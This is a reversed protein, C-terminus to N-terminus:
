GAGQEGIWQWPETYVINANSGDIVLIINSTADYGCEPCEVQLLSTTQGGSGDSFVGMRDSGVCYSYLLMGADWVLPRPVDPNEVTTIFAGDYFMLSSPNIPLIIPFTGVQSPLLDFNIIDFSTLTLNYKDNIQPLLQLVKTETTRTVEIIGLENVHIRNYWATKTGFYKSELKATVKVCTNKRLSSGVPRTPDALVFNELFQDRTLSTGSQKRLADIIRNRNNGVDNM